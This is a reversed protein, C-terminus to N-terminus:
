SKMIPRHPRPDGCGSYVLHSEPLGYPQFIMARVPSRCTSRVYKQLREFAEIDPPTQATERMVVAQPRLAIIRELEPGSKILSQDKEFRDWLHHPFALPSLPHAGTASYLLPPGDFVLLRDVPGIAQVMRAFEAKSQRRREFDFPGTIMLAYLVTFGILFPGAPRRSLTAASAISLPVLLPLAYHGQFYFVSLFGIAAAGVWWAMFGGHLQPRAFVFGFAACLLLPATVTLLMGANYQISAPDMQPRAMSATVMAQYFETWFGAQWYWAAILAFPAAGVVIQVIAFRMNRHHWLGALGLFAAEFAATQKFTIAIGLLLMALYLRGVERGDVFQLVLLAGSAVFANYFVPSQGGVGVLTGLMALYLVGGALSAAPPMTRSCIRCIIFATFSAFLWAGIQYAIIGDPFAAFAWYAIFLGLPKRDWIDVYPIAGRHMEQGVLLYFSEDVHLNPDGFTSVRLALAVAALVIFQVWPSAIPFALANSRVPPQRQPAGRPLFKSVISIGM